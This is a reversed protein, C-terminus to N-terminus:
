MWAPTPWSKATELDPFEIEALADNNYFAQSEITILSDPLDIKKLGSCNYFANNRIETVGEPVKVRTLKQNGSFASTGIIRVNSPIVIDTDTGKYKTLVGSSDVTFEADAHATAPCICVILLLLCAFIWFFKQLVHQPATKIKM